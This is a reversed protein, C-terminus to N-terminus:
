RKLIFHGQIINLAISCNIHITHKINKNETNLFEFNM